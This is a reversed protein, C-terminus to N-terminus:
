ISFLIKICDDHIIINFLEKSCMQMRLNQCKQYIITLLKLSMLKTQMLFRKFFESGFKGLRVESFLFNLCQMNKKLYTKVNWYINIDVLIKTTLIRCINIATCILNIRVMFIDLLKKSCCERIMVFDKIPYCKKISFRTTKKSLVSFNEKSNLM